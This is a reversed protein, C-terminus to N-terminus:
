YISRPTRGVGGGQTILLDITNFKEKGEIRQGTGAQFLMGNVLLAWEEGKFVFLHTKDEGKVRNGNSDYSVLSWTGHLRELERTTVRRSIAAIIREARSQVEPDAAAAAKRLADLAPEGIAVLEKGAAERKACNQDGLQKILGPVRDAVRPMARGPEGLISGSEVSTLSAILMLVVTCTRMSSEWIWM